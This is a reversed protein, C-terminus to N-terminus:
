IKYINVKCYLFGYNYIIRHITQAPKNTKNAIVKAAKGTPAMLVFSRGISKLYDTIGITLFTKGVGAYGKLLFASNGSDFLFQDLERILSSQGKTLEKGIFFGSISKPPLPPLSNISITSPILKKTKM